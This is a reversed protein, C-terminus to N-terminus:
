RNHSAKSTKRFPLAKRISFVTEFLSLQFRTNRAPRPILMRFGFIMRNKTVKRGCNTEALSGVCRCFQDKETQPENDNGRDDNNRHDNKGVPDGHLQAARRADQADDIPQEGTDHRSKGDPQRQCAGASVVVPSVGRTDPKMRPLGYHTQLWDTPGFPYRSRARTHPPPFSSTGQCWASDSLTVEVVGIGEPAPKIRCICGKSFSPVTQNPVSALVALRNGPGAVSPATKMNRPVIVSRVAYESGSKVTASANADIRDQEDTGGAM